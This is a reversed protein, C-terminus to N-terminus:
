HLAAEKMETRSKYCLEQMAFKTVQRLPMKPTEM